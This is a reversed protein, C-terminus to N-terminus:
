RASAPMTACTANFGGDALAFGASDVTFCRAKTPVSSQWLEESVLQALRKGTSASWAFALVDTEISRYSARAMSPPGRGEPRPDARVYALALPLGSRHGAAGAELRHRCRRPGYRFLPRYIGRFFARRTTMDLVHQVHRRGLRHRRAGASYDTVPRAPDILGRGALIGFVSGTVSKAMSQSLHLTREDMGNFYREYAIAGDKLVLFGDTYTEDLLGALTTPGARRQGRGGARRSRGRRTRSSPSPRQRALSRRDASNGQHAPVGLPEM